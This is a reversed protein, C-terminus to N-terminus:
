GESSYYVNTVKTANHECVWPAKAGPVRVQVTIQNEGHKVSITSVDGNGVQNAVAALCDSEPKTVVAQAAESRPTVFGTVKGEATVSCNARRHGSAVTVEYNGQGYNFASVASASGDPIDWFEDARRRCAQQAAAPAGRVLASNAHRRNHREAEGAMYGSHYPESDNTAYHAGYFADHYGRQFESNYNTNHNRHDTDHHHHSLAAVLGAAAAGIAIGVLENEDVKGCDSARAPEISQVRGDNVIASICAKSSRNWWMGAAGVNKKLVYGRRNLEGDLSSGRAGILDAMGQATRASAQASGVLSAAVFTAAFTANMLSSTM